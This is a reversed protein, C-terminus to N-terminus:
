HLLFRLPSLKILLHLSEIFLLLAMIYYLKKNSYFHGTGFIFPSVSNTGGHSTGHSTNANIAVYPTKSNTENIHM